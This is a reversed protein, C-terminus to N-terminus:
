PMLVRAVSLYILLSLLDQIVTALPGSGFAPDGGLRHLLWPLGIAVATATACAAVLSIGLVAVFPSNDWRWLALAMSALGLGLGILVGTVLEQGVVRRIPIGVSLGRVVLTETQTGVADALYVIGPLFFALVLSARLQDEFAAVVDAALLMGFLGVLLWPLRHVLRRWVPEQLARQASLADRQMGGLRAMDEHHEALLVTLLRGPPILGVFHGSEDVVALASEEHQVAKWAALEQDAGPGVVPPDRDMITEASVEAPAALLTELPVLGVLRGNVCVAVDTACEYHRGVLGARIEAATIDPSTTPVRRAVHEGATEFAVSGM